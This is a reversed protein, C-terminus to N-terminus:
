RSVMETTNWSKRSGRPSHTTLPSFTSGDAIRSVASSLMSPSSSSIAPRPWVSAACDSHVPM